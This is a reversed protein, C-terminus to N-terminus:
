GQYGASGFDRNRKEAPVPEGTQVWVVKGGRIAQCVPFGAKFSAGISTVTPGVKCVVRGHKDQVDVLKGLMIIERHFAGFPM